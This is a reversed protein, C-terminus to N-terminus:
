PNVFKNLELGFDSPPRETEVRCTDGDYTTGVIMLNSGFFTSDKNYHMVKCTQGVKISELDYKSNVTIVASNVANKFNGLETNGRQDAGNADTIASDSILVSNRGTPTGGTGFIAQSPADSYNTITGGSRVVRVYNIVKEGDKPAQISNVNLGITFKHTATSPKAQLWYLGNEDIKWWWNTGALMGVQTLSDFWKMNSFTYSVNTGVTSTSTGSTYSLLSGGFITNYNDIISEGIARPDVGSKVQDTFQGYYDRTLLSILGLCTVRVGEFGGQEIYPEYKSIFGRYIRRGTAANTPDAEYIDVIFTFDIITGEGFNDFKFSTGTLDLVCEGYGGNIRCSFTPKSKVTDWVVTKKLTTGDRGYIKILWQKQLAM